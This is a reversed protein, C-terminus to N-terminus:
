GWGGWVTRVLVSEVERAHPVHDVRGLGHVAVAEVGEDAGEAGQAQAAGGLVAVLAMADDEGGVPQRFVGDKDAAATRTRTHTTRAPLPCVPMVEHQTSTSM